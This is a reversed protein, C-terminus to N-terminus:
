PWRPSRVWGAAALILLFLVGLGLYSYGEYQGTTASPLEPLLMSGYEMPNIPALLNMSFVGYGGGRFGSNGRGITLFGHLGFSSVLIALSVGALGLAGAASVRRELALRACAAVTVLWCMVGLYPSMGGAIALIIWFPAMWRRLAGIDDSFYQYFAWLILWHS